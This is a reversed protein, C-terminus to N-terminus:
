NKIFRRTYVEGNADIWRVFYAGAQLQDISEQSSGASRPQQLIVKGSLSIISLQGEGSGPLDLRISSSAPNPAIGIDPLERNLVTTGIQPDVGPNIVLPDYHDHIDITYDEVEGYWYTGCAEPYDDFAMAVRM